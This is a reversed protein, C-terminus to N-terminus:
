RHTPFGTCRRSRPERYRSGWARITAGNEIAYVALISDSEWRAAPLRRFAEPDKLQEHPRLKM